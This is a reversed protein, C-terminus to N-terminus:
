SGYDIMRWAGRVWGINDAKVDGMGAAIFADAMGDDSHFEEWTQERDAREMVLLWGGPCCWVVRALMDRPVMQWDKVGSWEWLDRERMNALLGEIFHRWNSWTPLKIAWRGVLLVRRTIGTRIM